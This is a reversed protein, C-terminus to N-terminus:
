LRCVRSTGKPTVSSQFANTLEDTQKKMRIGTVRSKRKCLMDENDENRM